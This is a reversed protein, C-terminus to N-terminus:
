KLFSAERLGSVEKINKLDWFFDLGTKKEINRIKTRLKKFSAKRKVEQSMIYSEVWLKKGLKPTKKITAVIKWYEDPIQYKKELSSKKKLYIPGTMVWVINGKRVYNRIAEELNKWEGQNLPRKQPTINSLYNTQSFYTSGLFSALPAQHGRDYDKTIDKTYDKKNLTENDDLFPDKRWHRNTDASRSFGITELFSKDQNVEKNTLKYAVWDAFKTKDNNSLAYLDYIILDNTKPTGLPYGGIWHKSHIELKPFRNKSKPEKAFVVVSLLIATLLIVKKM